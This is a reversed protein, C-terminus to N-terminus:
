RKSLFYLFWVAHNQEDAAARKFAERITRDKVYDAIDLYFDVTEQEDKFASELANRYQEPCPETISIDPKRGTLSTYFTLFANFHRIEDQRIELIQQKTESDPAKQAIKQYCVVASHEGNVAKELDKILRDNQRAPYAPHYPQVYWM